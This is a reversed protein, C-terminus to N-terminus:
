RQHRKVPLLAMSSLEDLFNRVDADLLLAKLAVLDFNHGTPSVFEEAHVAISGLKALLGLTPQMMPQKM